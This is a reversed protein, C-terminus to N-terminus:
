IRAWSRLRPLSAAHRAPAAAPPDASPAPPDARRADRAARLERSIRRERASGVLAPLLVLAALVTVGLLSLLTNM